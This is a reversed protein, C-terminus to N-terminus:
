LSCACRWGSWELDESCAQGLKADWSTQALDEAFVCNELLELEPALV